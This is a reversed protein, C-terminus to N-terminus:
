EGVEEEEDPEFVCNRSFDHAAFECGLEQAKLLDLCGYEQGLHIKCMGRYEYADGNKSDNAIVRTFDDLANIYDQMDYKAIGIFYYLWNGDPNNKLDKNYDDIAGQYDELMYKSYGRGFYVGQYTSDIEFVKNYDDLAGQYDTTLLFKAEAREYYSKVDKPDSRFLM